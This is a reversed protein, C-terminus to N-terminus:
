YFFQFYIGIGISILGLIIGGWGLWISKRGYKLSDETKLNSNHKNIFDEIRQIKEVHRYYSRELSDLRSSFLDLYHRYSLFVDVNPKFDLTPNGRFDTARQLLDCFNIEFRRLDLYAGNLSNSLSIEEVSVLDMPKPLSLTMENLQEFSSNMEDILNRYEENQPFGIKIDFGKGM